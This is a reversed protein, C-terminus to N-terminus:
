IFKGAAFQRPILVPPTARERRVQRAASRLEKDYRRHRTGWSHQRLIRRVLVGRGMVTKQSGPLSQIDGAGDPKQHNARNEESKVDSSVAGSLSHIRENM